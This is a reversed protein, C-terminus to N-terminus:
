IFLGKKVLYICLSIHVIISISYIIYFLPKKSKHHFIYMGAFGGIGGGIIAFTFLSSERIRWKQKKARNKDIGM